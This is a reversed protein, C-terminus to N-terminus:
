RNTSEDSYGLVDELTVQEVFQGRDDRENTM